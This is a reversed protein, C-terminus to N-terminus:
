HSAAATNNPRAARAATLRNALTSFDLHNVQEILRVDTAPLVAAGNLAGCIAGTMASITDTDGGLNATFAVSETIQGQYLAVAALAAPVAEVTQVSTGFTEYLLEARAEPNQIPSLTSLVLDLRKEIHPYGLNRGFQRGRCAAIRVWDLMEGINNGVYVGYSVAAAIACAGSIAIATNHTALCARVVANLFSDMERVDWFIGVPAIRMAAGNTEGSLGIEKIPVGNRFQELARKTSPGLVSQSKQPHDEAWRSIRSLYEKPQVDGEEILQECLILSLITDDTIEGRVFGPSVLNDPHGPLLEQIHGFRKKLTERPTLEAPMGFSDGYALGLLTDQVNRM